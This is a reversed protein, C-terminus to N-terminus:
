ENNNNTITAIGSGTGCSPCSHGCGRFLKKSSGLTTTVYTTFASVSNGHCVQICNLVPRVNRQYFNRAPEKLNTQKSTPYTTELYQDIEVLVKIREVTSKTKTYKDRFEQLTETKLLDRPVQITANNYYQLPPLDTPAPTNVISTSSTSAGTGGVARKKIKKAVRASSTGTSIGQAEQEQKRKLHERMTDKVEEPLDLFNLATARVEATVQKIVLDLLTKYETCQKPNCDSEFRKYLNTLLDTTPRVALVVNLLTKISMTGDTSVQYKKQIYHTALEPIEKKFYQSCTTLSQGLLATSIHISEWYGVAHQQSFSEKSSVALSTASDRIYACANSLTKHRASMLINGFQIDALGRTSISSGSEHGNFKLTGWIAFLYATKRLTHTGIRLEKEDILKKTGCYLRILKKLFKRWYAYTWKIEGHTPIPEGKKFYPFLYGTTIGTISLYVLLHRLPCFEPCKEDEFIYLGKKTKDSKGKIWLGIARVDDANVVSLTKDFQDMTISLLEDARLFLKIGLLIMVYIQLSKVDTGILHDRLDRVDGPLLQMSGRVVHAEVRCRAAGEEDKYITSNTPDGLERLQPHGAHNVCSRYTGPTNNNLQLAVCYQCKSFYQQCLNDYLKHLYGMAARFKYIPGPSKWDGNTKLVVFEDESTRYQVLTRTKYVYLNKGKDMSKWQIYESLLEPRVPLPNDPCLERTLLAASQYDERLIAFSRLQYWISQYEKITGQKAHRRTEGTVVGRDSRTLRNSKIFNKIGSIGREEQWATLTIRSQDKFSM